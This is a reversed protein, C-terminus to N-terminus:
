LNPPDLSLNSTAAGSPENRAMGHTLEVAQGVAQRGTRAPIVDPTRPWHSLSRGQKMFHVFFHNHLTVIRVESVLRGQVQAPSPREAKTQALPPALLVKALTASTHSCRRHVRVLDASRPM